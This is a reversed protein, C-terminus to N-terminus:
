ISIQWLKPTRISIMCLLSRQGCTDIVEQWRALAFPMCNDNFSRTTFGERVSVIGPNRIRSWADVPGLAAQQM